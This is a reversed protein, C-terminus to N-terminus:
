RTRKSGPPTSDDDEGNEDPTGSKSSSPADATNAGKGRTMLNYFDHFSVQAVLWGVLGGRGCSSGRPLCCARWPLVSANTEHFFFCM